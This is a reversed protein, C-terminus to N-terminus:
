GNQGIQWITLAMTGAASPKASHSAALRHDVVGPLGGVLRQCSGSLIGISAVAGFFENVGNLFHVEDRKHRLVGQPVSRSHRVGDGCVAPYAVEPCFSLVHLLPKPQAWVM